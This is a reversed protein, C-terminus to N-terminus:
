RLTVITAGWGGAEAPADHAHGPCVDLARTKSSRNRGVNLQVLTETM